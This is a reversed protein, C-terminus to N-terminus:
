VGMPALDSPLCALRGGLFAQVDEGPAWPRAECTTTKLVDLGFSCRGDPMLRLLGDPRSLTRHAVGPLLRDAAIGDKLLHFEDDALLEVAADSAAKALCNLDRRLQEAEGHLVAAGDKRFRILPSVAWQKVGAAALTIPLKSLREAHGAFLVSHAIVKTQRLDRAAVSLGNTAIEWAGQRRRLRDHEYATDADISVTVGGCDLRDLMEINESLHLGNTVLGTEAGIDRGASLIAETWPLSTPALPEYGQLAIAAIKQVKSVGRIFEVYDTPLLAQKSTVEGRQSIFCYGCKMGCGGDVPTIFTLIAGNATPDLTATLVAVAAM